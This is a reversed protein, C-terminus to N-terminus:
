HLKKDPDKVAAAAVADLAEELIPEGLVPEVGGPPIDIGLMESLLKKRAEVMVEGQAEIRQIRAGLIEPIEAMNFITGVEEKTLFGKADLMGILVILLTELEAVKHLLGQVEKSKKVM